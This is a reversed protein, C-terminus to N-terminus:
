GWVRGIWAGCGFGPIVATGVPNERVEFEALIVMGALVPNVSPYFTLAIEEKIEAIHSAVVRFICVTSISGPWVTIRASHGRRIWGGRRPRPILTGRLISVIWIRSITRRKILTILPDSISLPAGKGEPKIDRLLDTVMWTEYVTAVPRHGIRPPLLLLFRQM